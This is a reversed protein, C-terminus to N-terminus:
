SRGHTPPVPFVPKGSSPATCRHAKHLTAGGNRCSTRRFHACLAFTTTSRLGGAPVTSTNGKTAEPPGPALGTDQGATPGTSAERSWPLALSPLACSSIFEVRALAAGALTYYMRLDGWSFPAEQGLSKFDTVVTATEKRHDRVVKEVPQWFQSRGFRPACD